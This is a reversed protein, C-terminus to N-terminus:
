PVSKKKPPYIYRYVGDARGQRYAADGIPPFPTVPTCLAPSTYGVIAKNQTYTHQQRQDRPHTRLCSTVRLGRHEYHLRVGDVVDDLTARHRQRAARRGGDLDADLAGSLPDTGRSLHDWKTM